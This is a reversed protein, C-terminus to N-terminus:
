LTKKLEIYNSQMTIIENYIKKLYHYEIENYIPKSFFIKTYISVKDNTSKISFTARGGKNPLAIAKNKPLKSITYGEPIKISINFSKSWAYGFDVPFKREKLKFPNKTNRDIIFPNIRIVNELELDPISITFFTKHSDNGKEPAIVKFDDVEILPYKTEFDEIYQDESKSAISKREQMAYYGKKATTIKGICTGNEFELNISHNKYSRYKPQILEWYSGKKFDLVRGEGNLCRYPVEGFILHKETADLFYTEGDIVTKVIVYNFESISPYLKTVIGHQRTSLVVLYTEINAAVLANYLTLNIADVAGVKNDYINKIRIKKSSWYNENWNLREQIHKYVGNARDFDNEKALLEPPLNRKFYNKKSTQGDFFNNKLTRDADKWTSTYKTVKGNPSTYSISEFIIKSKFNDESLMYDEGKFAPIHDLGYEVVWCSGNNAGPVSVCYKKIYDNKRDLPKNTRLRINHKWNGLISATFDSKVKPIDSQFNWDNIRSFPSMYSYTYEIVCGEKLNPLTFSTQKWNESIQKTFINEKKLYTKRVFTGDLSYTVAKINQIKESKYTNIHITAREFESKNFIKVRKYIDRRFLYNNAKDIYHYGKEELVLANATSDRDYVKMKLEDEDIFGLRQLDPSQTYAYISLFLLLITPTKM